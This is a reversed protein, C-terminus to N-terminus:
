QGRWADPNVLHPPRRGQLAAVINEAAVRAMRARTARTASGLHPVLV